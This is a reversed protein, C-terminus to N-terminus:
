LVKSSTPDIASIM